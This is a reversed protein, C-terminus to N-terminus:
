KKLAKAILQYELQEQPTMKEPDLALLSDLKQDLLLLLLTQNDEFFSAEQVPDPIFAHTEMPGWSRALQAELQDSLFVALGQPDLVGKIMWFILTFYILLVIIFLTGLGYIHRTTKYVRKIEKELFHHVTNSM